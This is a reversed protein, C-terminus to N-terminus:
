EWRRASCRICFTLAGVRGLYREMELRAGTASGDCGPVDEESNQVECDNYWDRIEEEGFSGAHAELVDIVDELLASNSTTHQRFPMNDASLSINLIRMRM